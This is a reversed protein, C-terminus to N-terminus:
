STPWNVAANVAKLANVRGYGLTQSHGNVYAGGTPDIKEATQRLIDRIDNHTLSPNVALCLAAVSAVIPTSASTGGFQRWTLGSDGPGGPDYGRGIGSVDSVFIMVDGEDDSPAVVDVQDGSTSYPAHVDDVTCAGVAITRNDSAPFGIAPLDNGTACVVPVHKITAAQLASSVCDAFPGTWSCSIVNAHHIAYRIASAMDADQILERGNLVKVPL